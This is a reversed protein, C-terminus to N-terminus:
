MCTDHTCHATSTTLPVSSGSRVIRRHWCQRHPHQNTREQPQPQPRPPALRMHPNQTRLMDLKIWSTSRSGSPQRGSGRVSLAAASVEQDKQVGADAVRALCCGGSLVAARAVPCRRSAPVRRPSSDNSDGAGLGWAVHPVLRSRLPSQQHQIAQRRSERSCVNHM